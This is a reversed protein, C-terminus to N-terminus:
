RLHFLGGAQEIATTVWAPKGAQTNIRMLIVKGNAAAKAVEGDLFSWDFNGESPELDAWDQRISIGLVDPNELANDAAPTGTGFLSFVGRPIQAKAEETGLSAMLALGLFLGLRSTNKRLFHDAEGLLRLGM